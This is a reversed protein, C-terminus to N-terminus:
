ITKTGFTLLLQSCGGEGRGEGGKPISSHFCQLKQASERRVHGGIAYPGPEPDIAFFSGPTKGAGAGLNHTVGAPCIALYHGKERANKNSLWFRSWFNGGEGRNTSIANWVSAGQGRLQSSPECCGGLASITVPNTWEAWLGTEGFGACFWWCSM